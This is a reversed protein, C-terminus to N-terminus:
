EYLSLRNLFQVVFYMVEYLSLTVREVLLFLVIKLRGESQNIASLQSTELSM